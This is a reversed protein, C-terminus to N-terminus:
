ENSENIESNIENTWKLLYKARLTEFKAKEERPIENENEFTNFYEVGQCDNINIKVYSFLLKRASCITEILKELERVKESDRVQENRFKLARLEHEKWILAKNIEDRSHFLENVDHILPQEDIIDLFCDVIEDTEDLDLPSDESNENETIDDKDELVLKNVERLWKTLYKGRLIGFEERDEEPIEDQSDFSNFYDVSDIDEEEIESFSKLFVKTSRIAGM